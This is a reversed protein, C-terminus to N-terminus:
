RTITLLLLTTACKMRPYSTRHLQEAHIGKAYARPVRPNPAVDGTGRMCPGDLIGNMWPSPSRPIGLACPLLVDRGHHAHDVGATWRPWRPRGRVGPLPRGWPERREPPPHPTGDRPDGDTDPTSLVNRLASPHPHGYPKMDGLQAIVVEAKLARVSPCSSSVHLGRGRTCPAGSRQGSCIFPRAM